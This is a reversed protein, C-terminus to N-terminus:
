TELKELRNKIENLEDTIAKQTMTGDTNNGSKTYYKTVSSLEKILGSPFTLSLNVVINGNADTETTKILSIKDIENDLSGIVAKDVIALASNANTLARNSDAVAKQAIAAYRDIEVSPNLARAVLVDFIDLM